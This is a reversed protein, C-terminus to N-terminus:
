QAIPGKLRQWNLGSTTHSDVSATKEGDTKGERQQSAAIGSRGLSIPCDLGEGLGIAAAMRFGEVHVGVGNNGASGRGPLGTLQTACYSVGGSDRLIEFLTSRYGEGRCAFGSQDTHTDAREMAIGLDLVLQAAGFDACVAEDM